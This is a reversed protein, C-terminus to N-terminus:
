YSIEIARSTGQYVGISNITLTGNASIIKVTYTAGNDLAAGTFPEDGAVPVYPPNEKRIAYLVREIGTDAAYLAVVSYGMGRIIRIQGVLLTSIGLGIGLLVFMIVIALYIAVGRQM